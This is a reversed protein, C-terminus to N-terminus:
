RPIIFEDGGDVLLCAYEEDDRSVVSCCYNFYCAAVCGVAWCIVITVLM